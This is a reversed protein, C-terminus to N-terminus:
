YVVTLEYVTCKINGKLNERHNQSIKSIYEFNPRGDPKGHETDLTPSKVLSTSMFSNPTRHLTLKEDKERRKYTSSFALIYM